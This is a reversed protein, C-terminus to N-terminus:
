EMCSSDLKLIILSIMISKELNELKITIYTWGGSGKVGDATAALNQLLPFFDMRM